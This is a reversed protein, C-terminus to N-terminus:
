QEIDLRRTSRTRCQAAIGNGFFSLPIKLFPSLYAFSLDPGHCPHCRGNMSALNNARCTALLERLKERDADRRRKVIWNSGESKRSHSDLVWSFFADSLRPPISLDSSRNRSPAFFWSSPVDLPHFSAVLPVEASTALPQSKVTRRASTSSGRLFGPDRFLPLPYLFRRLRHSAAPYAVLQSQLLATFLM